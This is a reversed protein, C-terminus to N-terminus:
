NAGCSGILDTMNSMKLNWIEIRRPSKVVPNGILKDVM